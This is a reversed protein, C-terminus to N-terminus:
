PEEAVTSLGASIMGVVVPSSVPIEIIGDGDGYYELEYTRNQTADFQDSGSEQACPIAMAAFDEEFKDRKSANSYNKLGDQNEAIIDDYEALMGQWEKNKDLSLFINKSCNLYLNHINKAEQNAMFEGGIYICKGNSDFEVEVFGFVSKDELTKNLVQMLAQESHEEVAAIFAEKQTGAYYFYAKSEANRAAPKGKRAPAFAM